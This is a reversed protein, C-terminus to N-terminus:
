MSECSQGAGRLFAALLALIADEASPNSGRLRPPCRDARGVAPLEGRLTMNEALNPANAGAFPHQRIKGPVMAAALM